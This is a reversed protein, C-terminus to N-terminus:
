KISEEVIKIEEETLGYLRGQRCAPQYIREDIQKDLTAYKRQLHTKNRSTKAQQLQQFRHTIGAPNLKESPLRNDIFIEAWVPNYNIIWFPRCLKDTVQLHRFCNILILKQQKSLYV